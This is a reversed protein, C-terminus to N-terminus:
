IKLKEEQFIGSCFCIIIKIIPHKNDLDIDNLSEKDFKIEHPSEEGNIEFYDLVEQCIKKRSNRKLLKYCEFHLKEPKPDM